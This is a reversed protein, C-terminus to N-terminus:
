SVFVAVQGTLRSSRQCNRGRRLLPEGRRPGIFGPKVAVTFQGGERWEVPVRRVGPAERINQITRMNIPYIDAKMSEGRRQAPAGRHM